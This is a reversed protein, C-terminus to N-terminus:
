KLLSRAEDASGRDNDADCLAAAMQLEGRAAIRNGAQILLKGLELRARGHVWKRGESSVSQRLDQEAEAGRRLAARAAGRKYFWLANEGFMRPRADDAFRALGESLFREADAPRGARLSTAGRELWVLRNQPYKARLLELQQLAEDYRRERNYVLILTFRGDEQNEGGYTVADEIMRIGRAKDGGFGAIYAALRLPLSLASVIYRYTGVILGADKRRPDLSM